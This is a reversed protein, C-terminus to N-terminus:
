SDPKGNEKSCDVHEAPRVKKLRGERELSADELQWAPLYSVQGDEGVVSLAPNPKTTEVSGISTYGQDYLHCYPLRFKKLFAWVHHYQWTLIPNVRMFNPWGPTSPEFHEMHSGHPDDRRTGMVFACMDRDKTFLHIGDKFAADVEVIHLRCAAVQQRVFADVAPFDSGSLLYLCHCFPQVNHEQAYKAIVARTLHMVVTADKGGNFAVALRAPTYLRVAGELVRLATRLPIDTCSQEILAAHLALPDTIYNPAPIPPPM